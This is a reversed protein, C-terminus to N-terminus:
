MQMSFLLPSVSSIAWMVSLGVTTQKVQPASALETSLTQAGIGMSFMWQSSHVVNDGGIRHSGTGGRSRSSPGDSTCGRIIHVFSGATEGAFAREADQVRGQRDGINRIM